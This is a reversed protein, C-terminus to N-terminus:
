SLQVHGIKRTLGMIVRTGLWGCFVRVKERIKWSEWDEVPVGGDNEISRSRVMVGVRKSCGGDWGLVELRGCGQTEKAVGWGLGFLGLGRQGRENREKNSIGTGTSYRGEGWTGDGRCPGKEDRRCQRSGSEEMKCGWGRAM